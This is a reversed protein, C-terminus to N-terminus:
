SFITFVEAGGLFLLIIQLLRTVLPSSVASIGGLCAGALTLRSAIAGYSSSGLVLVLVYLPIIRYLISTNVIAACVAGILFFAVSITQGLFSQSLAWSFQGSSQFMNIVNFLASSEIAGQIGLVAGWKWYLAGGVPLALFILERFLEKMPSHRQHYIFVFLLLPILLAAIPEVLILLALGAGTFIWRNDLANRIAFMMAFCSFALSAGLSLEYSTVWLAMLTAAGTGVESIALREVVAFLEWLFLVLFVNSWFIVSLGSPVPIAAVFLRNLWLFPSTTDTFVSALSKGRYEGLAHAEPNESVRHVFHETLVSFPQIPRLAKGPLPASTKHNIAFLAVIFLLARHTLLALFVKWM